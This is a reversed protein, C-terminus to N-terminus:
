LKGSEAGTEAQAGGTDAMQSPAEASPGVPESKGQRRARLAAFFGDLQARVEGALVGKAVAVRHNLVPSRVIEFVTGAAGARLDDVAYVLRGIRAQVMAGACMPCPEMTCYVTVDPLRWRGLREAAERLLLIEAHATPDVLAEKQNHARAVLEREAVAVAGVPVDGAAAAADAEEIALRMWRQDEAAEVVNCEASPVGDLTGSRNGPSCVSFHAWVRTKARRGHMCEGAPRTLCRADM